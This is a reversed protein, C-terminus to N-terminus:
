ELKMREWVKDFMVSSWSQVNGEYMHLHTSSESEEEIRENESKGHVEVRIEVRRGVGGVVGESVECDKGTQTEGEENDRQENM